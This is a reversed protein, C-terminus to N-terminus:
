NVAFFSRAAVIIELIESNFIFFIFFMFFECRALQKSVIYGDHNAKAADTILNGMEIAGSNKTDFRFALMSQDFSYFLYM